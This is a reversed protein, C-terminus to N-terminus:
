TRPTAKVRAKLGTEMEFDFKALIAKAFTLPAIDLERLGVTPVPTGETEVNAAFHILVSVPSKTAISVSFKKEGVYIDNGRRRLGKVGNEWLWEYVNCVFLHQLWIGEQFSDIFFEGLFHVMKPSYIPAQKKVDTLDVMHDLRVDAAGVFAVVADGLIDFQKYLFHPALQAGDYDLPLESVHTKLRPM